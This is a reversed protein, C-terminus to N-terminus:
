SRAPCKEGSSVHTVTRLMHCTCIMVPIGDEGTDQQALGGDVNPAARIGNMKM